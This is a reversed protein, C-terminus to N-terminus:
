LRKERDKFRSDKLFVPLNSAFDPFIPAGAGDHKIIGISNKLNYVRKTVMNHKYQIGKVKRQLERDKLSIRNLKM